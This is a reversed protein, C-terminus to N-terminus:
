DYRSTDDNSQETIVIFSPSVTELNYNENLIHSLEKTPSHIPIKITHFLSLVKSIQNRQLLNRSDEITLSNQAM